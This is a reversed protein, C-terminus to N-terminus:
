SNYYNAPADLIEDPQKSKAQGKKKRAEVPHFLAFTKMMHVQWVLPVYMGGFMILLVMYLSFLVGNSFLFYLGVPVLMLIFHVLNPLVNMWMLLWSDKLNQAVSQKYTVSVSCLITLYMALFAFAICLLVLLVIALWAPVLASIATYFAFLGYAGFSIIAAAVLAYLINSKFGLWLSKFVGVTSLKGTWFADRIVAFGGSLVVALILGALAIKAGSVYNNATVGAQYVADVGDWVGTSFGVANLMPLERQLSTNVIAGSYFMIIVPVICLLMLISYGFLRWMNDRYLVKFFSWASLRNLRKTVHTNRENELKIQSYDM